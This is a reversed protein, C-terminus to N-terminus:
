PVPFAIDSETRAADLRENKKNNVKQVDEKLKSDQNVIIFENNPITNTFLTAGETEELVAKLESVSVETHERLFSTPSLNSGSPLVTHEPNSPDLRARGVLEEAAQLVHSDSHYIQKAIM